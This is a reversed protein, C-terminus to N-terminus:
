FQINLKGYIIRGPINSINQTDNFNFLNDIGLGLIYHESFTKNLAFDWITYAKIFQDYQDLYTNGNTDFLGYKSRYTGRLNADINWKKIFYFLKLNAMHRSRNFLGFYDSEDLQFSPSTPTERAFVDGNNFATVADQDRAYLLQYGGTINFNKSVRYKSNIELGQTVVRNVNFYSFVNQGNTKNAVVRTDILNTINNRFLNFSVHTKKNLNITAGLNIGISSEPSLEQDFSSLPIVINTLEGAADLELIKDKAVSYGLVTYGVTANTFDFFLQRFDPAKFGYGISGKFSIKANLDYRTAVKPSFQSKYANHSDFRGGVIVNWKNNINTDYQVFIYPANFRPATNFYTRDIREHTIGLGIIINHNKNHVYTTRLEPRLLIQDFNSASFTSNNNTNTLFEEAIYRTGYLELTNTFKNIRFVTKSAVNWENISSKGQLTDNSINDQYQNFYRGSVSTKFHNNARFLIDSAITTNHYPAVTASLTQPTLDYGNTNFHNIFGNIAVRNKKYSLSAQADHTDFTKYLYNISGRYGPKPTDTIINIVGGLAESGYLSSSPGKVVEIRKVNGVAIRNLDLTGASRGIIPNGNILIMTYQSDIGQMQIGEGGGFDPVTILGTQENLIDSLRSSNVSSIETKNVTLVPIPLSTINKKTRTATVVVEEIVETKSTDVVVVKENQSYVHISFLTFFIISIKNKNLSM